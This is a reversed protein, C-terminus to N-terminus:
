VLTPELDLDCDLILCQTVTNRTREIYKSGRTPKVNYSKDLEIDSVVMLFDVRKGINFM